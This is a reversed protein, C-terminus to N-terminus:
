FNRVFVPREKSLNELMGAKVMNKALALTEPAIDM